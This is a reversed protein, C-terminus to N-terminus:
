PNIANYGRLMNERKIRMILEIDDRRYMREKGDDLFQITGSKRWRSLTKYNVGTQEMIQSETEWREDEQPFMKLSYWRTDEGAQLIDEVGETALVNGVHARLHEVVRGIPALVDRGNFEGMMNFEDEIMANQMGRCEGNVWWFGKLPIRPISGIAMCYRALNGIFAAELDAMEMADENVPSQPGFGQFVVIDQYGPAGSIMRGRHRRIFSPTERLHKDLAEADM